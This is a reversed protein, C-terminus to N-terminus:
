PLVAPQLRARMITIVPRNGDNASAAYSAGWIDVIPDDIPDVIPDTFPYTFSHQGPGPSDEDAIIFRMRYILRHVMLCLTYLLIFRAPRFRMPPLSIDYDHIFCMYFVGQRM